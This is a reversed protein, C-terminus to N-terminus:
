AKVKVGSYVRPKSRPASHLLINIRVKSVKVKVLQNPSIQCWHSFFSKIVIIWNNSNIKMTVLRFQRFRVTVRISFVENSSFLLLMHSLRFTSEPLALPYVVCKMKM